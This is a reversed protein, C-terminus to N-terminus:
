KKESSENIDNKYTSSNSTDLINLEKSPANLHSKIQSLKLELDPQTSKEIINLEINNFKNENIFNQTIKNESIQNMKNIDKISNDLFSETEKINYESKENKNEILDSCIKSDIYSKISLNGFSTDNHVNVNKQQCNVTNIKRMDIDLSKTNKNINEFENINTYIKNTTNSGKLHYFPQNNSFVLINQQNDFYDYYRNKELDFQVGKATQDDLNNNEFTKFRKIPSLSGFKYNNEYNKKNECSISDENDKNCLNTFLSECHLVNRENKLKNKSPLEDQFLIGTSSKNKKYIETTKQPSNDGMKSNNFNIKESNSIVYKKEKNEKIINNDNIYQIPNLNIDSEINLGTNELINVNGDRFNPEFVISKKKLNKQNASFVAKLTYNDLINNQQDKNNKNQDSQQCDINEQIITKDHYSSSKHDLHFYSPFEIYPETNEKDINKPLSSILNESCYVDKHNDKLIDESTKSHKKSSQEPIDVELINKSMFKEDCEKLESYPEFTKKSLNNDTFDCEVNTNAQCHVVQKSLYLKNDFLMSEFGNKLPNSLLNLDQKDVVDNISKLNYHNESNKKLHLTNEDFSKNLFVNQQENYSEMINTPKQESSKICANELDLCSYKKYYQDSVNHPYVSNELVNVDKASSINFEQNKECPKLNYKNIDCDECDIMEKTKTQNLLEKDKNILMRDNNKSVTEHYTPKKYLDNKFDRTTLQNKNKSIYTEIVELKKYKQNKENIIDINYDSKNEYKLFDKIFKPTNLQEDKVQTEDIKNLFHNEAFVDINKKTIIYNNHDNKKTNKKNKHIMLEALTKQIQENVQKNKEHESLYLKNILNNKNNIDELCENQIIKDTLPTRKLNNEINDNKEKIVAENNLCKEGNKDNAEDNCNLYTYNNLSPLSTKRKKNENYKFFTPFDIINSKNFFDGNNPNRSRIYFINDKSSTEEHSKLVNYENLYSKLTNNSSIDLNQKKFDIDSRFFCSNKELPNDASYINSNIAKKPTWKINNNTLFSCQNLNCSKAKRPTLVTKQNTVCFFAKEPNSNKTCASSLDLSSENLPKAQPTTILDNPNIEFKKTDNLGQLGQKITEDNECCKKAEVNINLGSDYDFFLDGIKIDSHNLDLLSKKKEAISTMNQLNKKVILNWNSIRECLFSSELIKKLSTDNKNKANNYIKKLVYKLVKNEELATEIKDNEILTLENETKLSSTTDVPKKQQNIPLLTEKNRTVFSSSYYENTNDKNYQKQTKSNFLSNIDITPSTLSKKVEQTLIPGFEHEKDKINKNIINDRSFFNKINKEDVKSVSLNKKSSVDTKINKSIKITDDDNRNSTKIIKKETLLDNKKNSYSKIYNMNNSKSKVAKEIKEVEKKSFTDQNVNISDVVTSEKCTVDVHNYSYNKSFGTDRKLDNESMKDLVPIDNHTYKQDIYLLGDNYNKKMLLKNTALHKKHPSNTNNQQINNTIFRNLEINETKLKENERIVEDFYQDNKIKTVKTIKKRLEINESKLRFIEKKLEIVNLKDAEIEMNNYIKNSINSARHAYKLTNFTENTDKSSGSICALMLTYSNGGLSHQLLRTLKSDRYPIFTHRKSLGTIVNSLALLGSNISISEKATVGKAETRKLRESGALDVFTFKSIVFGETDNKEFNAYSDSEKQSLINNNVQDSCILRKKDCNINFNDYEKINSEEAFLCEDCNTKRDIASSDDKKSIAKRFSITFIAHSRSSAMNMKTSKVTRDKLGKQLINIASKVSNVQIEKSGSINNEGNSTQINLHTRYGSLLDIVEENYIEIFSCFIQDNKSKKEFIYLLSDPIIGFYSKEKDKNDIKCPFSMDVHEDKFSSIEGNGKETFQSKSFNQKFLKPNNSLCPSSDNDDKKWSEHEKEGEINLKFGENKDSVFEVGDGHEEYFKNKKEDSTQNSTEFRIEEFHSNRIMKDYFVNLQANSIGMTYTKGSGTQGYCFVTCNFGNMLSCLMPEISKCFIDSHKAYSDYIYDFHFSKQALGIKHPLRLDLVDDTTPKIRIEVRVKNNEVDCPKKM